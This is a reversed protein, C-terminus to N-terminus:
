QDPGIAKIARLAEYKLRTNTSKSQETLAPLADKAAPGISRLASFVSQRPKSKLLKILFPVAAASKPGTRSLTSLAADVVAEDQDSLQRILIPVVSEALAGMEDYLLLQRVASTAQYRLDPDEDEMARLLAATAPKARDNLRALVRAAFIRSKSDKGELLDILANAGLSGTRGLADAAAVIVTAPDDVRILQVVAAVVEEEYGNAAFASLATLAKKRTASSLDTALIKRWEDFSREEYRLLKKDLHDWHTGRSVKGLDDIPLATTPGSLTILAAFALTISAKM